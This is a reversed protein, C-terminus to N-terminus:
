YKWTVHLSGANERNGGGFQGSYTLGITANKTLAAELGLEALAADRAIPAGAVTFAQGGDFAMTTQPLVDGFAHRWGLTAQLRSETRGVTFNTLARLGLTSTTQTDSNSQGRLAASGGSESFGRTRTNSWALGAFPELSVRDSVPLTYGLEGFLQTTSAGYDATLKQSAGAVSAYRETSIDHWTYSAGAMVNLKGPGAEFVKGGFLAATYGAVDAKSSRDDVRVNGDTFGLAGGLRWGGGLAHDVGAFVGGTNQRVQGADSNGKLTQWNGIVEAWAPQAASSPLASASLTGGAQATPAGPAMGAGLNARLHSLPVTRVTTNLSTLTSTVSAHAEGSLSNFAAATAGEPLTLIYNHLANSAPLSDLANAVARQNGTQAADAFAIPRTPTDPTQPSGPDVPVQKRGLQLVVNQADYQLAPDLYAYGSTVAGFQGNVAGATLITYQRQTQFGSDPGVHVVSGALNATGTVAVRSSASSQSDATVQYVTGPSFTLDGAVKLTTGAVGPALIAGSQLLTTGVQGGGQLTAGSAVTLAGGLVGNVALTGGLVQTQGSFGSSDGTLTTKGALVNIVGMGPSISNIASNFQYDAGTHNFVLKGDGNGFRVGLAAQVDGPATAADGAAAGINLVGTSGASDAIRVRNPTEITAGNTLTTVGDGLFGVLFAGSTKLKTNAGDATVAGQSGAEYGVILQYADVVAGNSAALTGKSGDQVGVAVYNNLSSLRSGAGSILVTGVGGNRIGISTRTGATVTAGDRIELTGDGGAGVSVDVTTQLSTNAGILQATGISGTNAGVLLSASQAQAQDSITLSGKGDAGVTLQGSQWATGAGSINLTGVAGSNAGVMSTQSSIAQGGSSVTMTGTGIFGVNFATATWTSGNGTITATGTELEMGPVLGNNSNSIIATGSTLQGGNQVTLTPGGVAGLFLTGAQVSVNDIVPANATVSNIFVFDTGTPLTNPSWNQADQWQSSQTGNWVPSQAMAPSASLLSLAYAGTLGIARLALITSQRKLPYPPM